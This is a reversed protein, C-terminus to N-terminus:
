TENEREAPPKPAFMKAIKKTHEDSVGSSHVSPVPMSLGSKALQQKAAALSKKTQEDLAAADDKAHDAISRATNSIVELQVQMEHAVGMWEDRMRTVRHLEQELMRIRQEAATMDRELQAYAGRLELVEPASDVLGNLFGQVDVKAPGRAFLKPKNNSQQDSM